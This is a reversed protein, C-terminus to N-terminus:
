QIVEVAEAERRIVSSCYRAVDETSLPTGARSAKRYKAAARAIGRSVASAPFRSVWTWFRYPDPAPVDQLMLTWLDQAAEVAIKQEQITM